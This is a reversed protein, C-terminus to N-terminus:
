VAFHHAGTKESKKCKNVAKECENEWKMWVVLIKM